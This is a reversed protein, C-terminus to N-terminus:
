PDTRGPCTIEVAIGEPELSGTKWLIALRSGPPIFCSPAVQARSDGRPLPGPPSGSWVSESLQCIAPGLNSLAGSVASSDTLLLPSRVGLVGLGVELNCAPKLEPCCLEIRCGLIAPAGPCRLKNEGSRNTQSRWLFM